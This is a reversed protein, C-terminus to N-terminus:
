ARDWIKRKLQHIPLIAGYSPVCEKQRKRSGAAKNPAKDWGSVITKHPLSCELEDQLPIDEEVRAPSLFFTKRLLPFTSNTLSAFWVPLSPPFSTWLLMSLCHFTLRVSESLLQPRRGAIWHDQRPFVCCIPGPVRSTTVSVLPKMLGLSLAETKPLVKSWPWTSQIKPNGGAGFKVRGFLGSFHNQGESGLWDLKLVWILVLILENRHSLGSWSEKSHHWWREPTNLM